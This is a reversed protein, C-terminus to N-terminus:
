SPDSDRGTFLASSHQGYSQMSSTIMRSANLVMASIRGILDPEPLPALVAISGLVAKKVNFIPAAVAILDELIEGRTILVGSNRIQRMKFGFEELRRGLGADRIARPSSEYLRVGFARTKHALIVKSPAGELLPLSAGREFARKYQFASKPKCLISSIHGAFDRCICIATHEPLQSYLSAIAQNNSTLIPDTLRAIRDQALAAQGLVYSSDTSPQIWGFESLIAFYRYMTSLSVSFERAADAVTVSPRAPSFLRLLELIRAASQMPAPQPRAPKGTRRTPSKARPM